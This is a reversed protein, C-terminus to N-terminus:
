PQDTTWRSRPTTLRIAEKRGVTWFLAPRLLFEFLTSSALGGIVVTAVPFLLERGTEGGGILLPLLGAGTTLATMVVPAARERGARVLLEPTLEVGEERMLHLYHDVLLIGNRTAIGALSVFGVLAAVNFDQGTLLLLLVGGVFATPVCVLVQLSLNFSRFQGYLIALMAALSILSLLVVLRTARQQSQFQGEFRLFSGEPMAEEIPALAERLDSVVEGLSRGEVNCSVAVRRLMDDRHIRNPGAAQEVRALEALM